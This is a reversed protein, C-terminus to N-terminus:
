NCLRGEIIEMLEGTMLPTRSALYTVQKGMRVVLVALVDETPFQREGYWAEDAWNLEVREMEVEVNHHHKGLYASREAEEVKLAILQNAIGM